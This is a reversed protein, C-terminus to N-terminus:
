DFVSPDAYRSNVKFRRLMGPMLFLDAVFWLGWVSFLVMGLPLWVGTCVAAGVFLAFQYAATDNSGCYIRHISLVGFFYWLVYALVIHRKEAAGFLAFGSLKAPRATGKAGPEWMKGQSSQARPKQSGVLPTAAVAARQAAKRRRESALFAERKEALEASPLEADFAGPHGATIGGDAGKRGFSM